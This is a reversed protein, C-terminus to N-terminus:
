AAIKIIVVGSGGSGGTGPNIPGAGGGGGTNTGANGGNFPSAGVGNSGSNLASGGGTGGTL